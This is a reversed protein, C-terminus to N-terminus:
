RLEGWAKVSVGVGKSYYYSLPTNFRVALRTSQGAELWVQGVQCDWLLVADPRPDSGEQYSSKKDVRVEYFVPSAVSAQNTLVLTATIWDSGRSHDPGWRWDAVEAAVPRREPMTPATHYTGTLRIKELLPPEGALHYFKYCGGEGPALDYPLIHYYESFVPEGNFGKRTFDVKVSLSRIPSGTENRVYGVVLLDENGTGMQPWLTDWELGNRRDPHVPDSPTGGPIPSPRPTPSPTPTATPQKQVHPLYVYYDAEGSDQAALWPVVILAGIFVVLIIFLRRTAM